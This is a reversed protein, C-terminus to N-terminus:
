AAAITCSSQFNVTTDNVPVTDDTSSAKAKCYFLTNVATIESTITLSAGYAGFTVGDSSLAWKNASDGTISITTNGVTKFGTECRIALTINSSEQNNTANLQGADIPSTEANDESVLTGNTNGATVTGKYIHFNAAM